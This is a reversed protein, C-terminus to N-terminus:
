SRTSSTTAAGSSRRTRSAGTAARRSPVREGALILVTVGASGDSGARRVAQTLEKVTHPTFANLTDPRNITVRALADEVEYLIDAYREAPAPM